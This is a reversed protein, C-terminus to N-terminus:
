FTPTGVFMEQAIDAKVEVSDPMMAYGVGGALLAGILSLKASVQWDIPEGRLKRDLAYLVFCALAVIIVMYVFMM